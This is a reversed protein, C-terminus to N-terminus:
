VMWESKDIKFNYKVMYYRSSEIQGCKEPDYFHKESMESFHGSILVLFFYSGAVKIGCINSQYYVGWVLCKKKNLEGGPMGSTWM